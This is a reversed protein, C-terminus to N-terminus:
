FEEFIIESAPEDEPETNKPPSTPKPEESTAPPTYHTSPVTPTHTTSPRTPATTPVPGNSVYIVIKTSAKVYAGSQKSQKYVIGKDYNDNYEYKVTCNLGNQKLKKKANAETSNVVYPVKVKKDSVSDANKNYTYINVLVVVNGNKSILDDNITAGAKPEQKAIKDVDEKNETEINSSKVVSFEIEMNVGAEDLKDVAERYTLGSLDPVTGYDVTKSTTPRLLLVAAVIVAILVPAVIALVKKLVSKSDTEEAVPMNPTELCQSLENALENATQFRNQPEVSLGKMVIAELKEPYRCNLQSFSMLLDSEGSDVAAKREDSRPPRKGTLMHYIVACMAYTDTSEACCNDEEYQEYPAYGHKLIINENTQACAISAGFDILKAKGNVQLMINDPAIDRHLIRENAHVKYLSECIPIIIKLLQQYDMIGNNNLYNQLTIGDVFEMAIYATENENFTEYIDVIGQHAGVRALQRSEKQFQEMGLRFQVANDGYGYDVITQGHIRTALNSPFYEKVAVKVNNILNYAVYTIASGGIGLVKGIYYKNNIITGPLLALQKTEDEAQENQDYGCHPCITDISVDFDNMCNFCKTMLM